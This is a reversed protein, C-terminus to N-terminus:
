TLRLYTVKNERESLTLLREINKIRFNQLSQIETHIKGGKMQHVRKIEYKEEVVPFNKRTNTLKKGEM